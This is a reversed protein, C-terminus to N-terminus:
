KRKRRLLALGAMSFPVLMSAPEPVPVVGSAVITGTMELVISNGSVDLDRTFAYDANITIVDGVRDVTVGTFDVFDPDLTSLDLTQDGGIVGFPDSIDVIGSLAILNNLQDFQGASVSGAAGPTLLDIMVNGATTTATVLGGGLIFTLSDDLILNLDTIQAVGFPPAAPTLIILGTGSTQSREPGVGDVTVDAFSQAPDADLSVIDSQVQASWFPLTSCIFLLATLLHRIM